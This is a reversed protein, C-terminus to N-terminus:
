HIIRIIQMTSCYIPPPPPACLQQFQHLFGVLAPTLIDRSKSTESLNLHLQPVKMEDLIYISHIKIHFRALIQCTLQHKRSKDSQPEVHLLWNPPSSMRISVRVALIWLHAFALNKVGRRTHVWPLIHEYIETFYGRPHAWYASTVCGPTFSIVCAPFYTKKKVLVNSVWNGM